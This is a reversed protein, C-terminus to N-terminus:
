IKPKAFLEQKRESNEYYEVLARGNKFHYASTLVKKELWQGSKNIFGYGSQLYKGSHYPRHTIVCFGEHFQLFYDSFDPSDSESECFQAAIIMKGQHDIFGIKRKNTSKDSVVRVAALGESFIGAYAFQAPIVIRGDKDLFGFLKNVPDQFSALGESFKGISLYKPPVVLKGDSFIGVLKQEYLLRCPGVLPGIRQYQPKVAWQGSRDIIGWCPPGTKNEPIASVAAYGGEFPEASIFQEKLLNGARDVYTLGHPGTFLSYYNHPRVLALGDSFPEALDFQPKILWNGKTDLYGWLGDVFVALSGESIDDKFQCETMKSDKLFQGDLGIFGVAKGKRVAAVGHSFRSVQDFRQPLIEGTDTCYSYQLAPWNNQKEPSASYTFAPTHVKVPARNETLINVVDADNSKPTVQGTLTILKRPGKLRGFFWGSDDPGFPNSVDFPRIDGSQDIIGLRDYHRVCSHRHLEKVEITEGLKQETQYWPKQKAFSPAFTCLALGVLSILRARYDPTPM